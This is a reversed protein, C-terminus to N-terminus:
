MSKNAIRRFLLELNITLKINKNRYLVDIIL